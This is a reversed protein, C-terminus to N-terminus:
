QPYTTSHAREAKHAKALEKEIQESIKQYNKSDYKIIGERALVHPLNKLVFELYGSLFPYNINM